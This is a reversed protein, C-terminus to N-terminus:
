DAPNQSKLSLLDVLRLMFVADGIPAKELWANWAGDNAGSIITDLSALSIRLNLCVSDIDKENM